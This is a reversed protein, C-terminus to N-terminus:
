LHWVDVVIRQVVHDVVLVEPQLSQRAQEAGRARERRVHHRLLVADLRLVLHRDPQLDRPLHEGLQQLVHKGAHVCFTVHLLAHVLEVRGGEGVDLRARPMDARAEVERGLRVDEGEEVHQAVAVLHEGGGLPLPRAAAHLADEAVLRADLKLLEVDAVERVDDEAHEVLLVCVRLHGGRVRHLHEDRLADVLVHGRRRSAPRALGLPVLPRLQQRAVHEDGRAVVEGELVDVAEERVEQAARRESLGLRRRLPLAASRRSAARCKARGERRLARHLRAGRARAASRPREHRFPLRRRAHHRPAAGPRLASPAM